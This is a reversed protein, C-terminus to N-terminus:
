AYFPNLSESTLHAVLGLWGSILLPKAYVTEKAARELTALDGKLQDEKLSKNKLM